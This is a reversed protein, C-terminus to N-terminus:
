LDDGEMRALPLTWTFAEAQRSYFRRLKIGSKRGAVTTSTVDADLLDDNPASVTVSVQVLTSAAGDALEDEYRASAREEKRRRSTTRLGFRNRMVNDAEHGSNGREARRRAAEDDEPAFTIAICRTVPGTGLLLPAMFDARRETRPLEEAILVAHVAGDTRYTSWGDEAATPWARDSATEVGNIALTADQLRLGPDFATRFTHALADPPLLGIVHVDANRLQNVVGGIVKLLLNAAARDKDEDAAKMQKRVRNTDMRLVLLAEHDRAAPGAQCLLEEYSEAALQHAADSRHQQYYIDLGGDANPATFEVVSIRDLPTNTVSAIVSDWAAVMADQDPLDRLSFGRGRAKVVALYHTPGDAIIGVEQGAYPVRLLRVSSLTDPTDEGVDLAVQSVHERQRTAFGLFDPLWEVLPQGAVPALALGGAICIFLLAILVGIMHGGTVLVAIFGMGVGALVTAVQLGTLGLLFGRRERPGFLYSRPETTSTV